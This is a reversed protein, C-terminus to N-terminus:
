MAYRSFAIENYEAADKQLQIGVKNAFYLGIRVKKRKHIKPKKRTQTHKCTMACISARQEPAPFSRRPLRARAACATQGQEARLGRMPSPPVPKKQESSNM